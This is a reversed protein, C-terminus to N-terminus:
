HLTAPPDELSSKLIDAKDKTNKKIIKGFWKYLFCSFVDMGRKEWMRGNETTEM